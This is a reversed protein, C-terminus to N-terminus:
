VGVAYLAVPEDFGKLTVDGASTFGFTKGLLLERVVNSVLVQGPEGWDGIRAALSVSLGFLDDDEAIPEGANIGFRVLLEEGEHTDNYTEIDRRVTLACNVADAASGFATMLGDGTHKIERGGFEEIATRVAANHVGLVTHAAEDGLRSQMSTSGALDTFLITQFAGRAAEAPVSEVDSGFVSDIAALAPEQGELPFVGDGPIVVLEANPLSSALSRASEVSLLPYDRVIILLTPVAITSLDVDAAVESEIENLRRMVTDVGPTVRFQAKSAEVFDPPASVGVMVPVVVDVWLDFDREALGRAETIASAQAVEDFSEFSNLLILGSVEQPNRAAFRLAASGFSYSGLIVFKGPSTADVIARIAGGLETPSFPNAEGVLDSMGLGLPDFVILRFRDSLADIWRAYSPHEAIPGTFGVSPMILTPGAGVEGYAVRHGQGTVAFQVSLSSTM